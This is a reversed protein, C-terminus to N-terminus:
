SFQIGIPLQNPRYNLLWAYFKNKVWAFYFNIRKKEIENKEPRIKKNEQSNLPFFLFFLFFFSFSLTESVFFFFSFPKFFSFSINKQFFNQTKGENAKKRKM